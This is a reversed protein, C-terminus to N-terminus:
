HITPSRALRQGKGKQTRRNNERQTKPSIPSTPIPSTRSVPRPLPAFGVGLLSPNEVTTSVWDHRTQEIWLRHTNNSGLSSESTPREFMELQHQITTMTRKVEIATSRSDFRCQSEVSHRTELYPKVNKKQTHPGIEGDSHRQSKKHGAVCCPGRERVCVCVCLCMCASARHSRFKQLFYSPKPESRATWRHRARGHCENRGGGGWGWGMGWPRM